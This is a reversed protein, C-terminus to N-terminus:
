SLLTCRLESESRFSGIACDFGFLSIHSNFCVRIANGLGDLLKPVNDLLFHEHILCPFFSSFYSCPHSCSSSSAWSRTGDPVWFRVCAHSMNYGRRQETVFASMQQLAYLLIRTGSCFSCFFLNPIRLPSTQHSSFSLYRLRFSAHPLWM